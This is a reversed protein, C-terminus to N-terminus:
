PVINKVMKETEGMERLFEQDYNSSTELYGRACNKLKKLRKNADSSGSRLADLAAKYKKLYDSLVDEGSVQYKKDIEEISRELQETLLSVEDKDM